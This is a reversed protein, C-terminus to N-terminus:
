RAPFAEDSFHKADAHTRPRLARPQEPQVGRGCAEDEGLTLCVIEREGAPLDRGRGVDVGEGSLEFNLAQLTGVAAVVFEGHAIGRAHQVENVGLAVTVLDIGLRCRRAGGELRLQDRRAKDSAQATRTMHDELGAVVRGGDIERGSNQAHLDAIM